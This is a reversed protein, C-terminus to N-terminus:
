LDKISTLGPAIVGGVFRPPPSRHMRRRRLTDQCTGTGCSVAVIETVTGAEKLHVAEELAIEDFPNMSMKVKASCSAAAMSANVRAAPAHLEIRM